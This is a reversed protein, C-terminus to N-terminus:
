GGNRVRTYGLALFALGTGSVNVMRVSVLGQYELSKGLSIQPLLYLMSINFPKLSRFGWFM